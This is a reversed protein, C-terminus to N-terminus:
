DDTNTPTPPAPPPPPATAVPTAKVDKRNDNLEGGPCTFPAAKLWNAIMPACRDIPDISANAPAIAFLIFTASLLTKMTQVGNPRRETIRSPNASKM